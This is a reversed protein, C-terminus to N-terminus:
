FPMDDDLDDLPPRAAQKAKTLNFLHSHEEVWRWGKDTVYVGEYEGDRDDVDEIAILGRRVLGRLALGFGVSTLGGEEAVRSLSWVAERADPVATAGAALGLLHVERPSLGDQSAIPNAEDMQVASVRELLAKARACITGKLTEFDSQSDAKYHIVHRHRIDFPLTGARENECCLLIVPKGAAYAFGLEYWVNPNDTTVDALVIAAKGIGEEIADILVDPSPDKDVRYAELGAERLAPAFTDEFRKDFRGQDFPQVVFCTPPPAGQDHDGVQSQTTKASEIVTHVKELPCSTGTYGVTPPFVRVAAGGDM